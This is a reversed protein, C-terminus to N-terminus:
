IGGMCTCIHWICTYGHGYEYSGLVWWLWGRRLEAEGGAGGLVWAHWRGHKGIMGVKGSTTGWREMNTEEYKDCTQKPLSRQCMTKKRLCSCHPVITRRGGGGVCRGNYM